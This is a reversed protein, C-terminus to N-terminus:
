KGGSNEGRPETGTPNTYPSNAKVQGPSPAAYMSNIQDATLGRHEIDLVDWRRGMEDMYTQRTIYGHNVQSQNALWDQYSVAPGAKSNTNDAM